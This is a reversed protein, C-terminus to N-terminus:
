NSPRPGGLQRVATRAGSQYCIGARLTDCAASTPGPVEFCPAEGVLAWIRELFAKLTGNQTSIDVDETGFVRTAVRAEDAVDVLM